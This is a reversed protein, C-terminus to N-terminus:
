TAESILPRTSNHFHHIANWFAGSREAFPYHGAGPIPARYADPLRDLLQQTTKIPIIPDFKGYVVLVPMTAEPLMGSIDVSPLWSFLSLLSRLDHQRAHPYVADATRKFEPHSRMAKPDAAFSQTALRFNQQSQVSLRYILEFGRQGMWGSRSLQELLGEVGQWQGNAFGDVSIVRAVSEPKSVARLLSLFGGMGHGVWEVVEDKPFIIEHVAQMLHQMQALNPGRSRAPEKTRGPAHFPLSVTAWPRGQTLSRATTTLWLDLSTLVGHLFIVPTGSGNLDYRRYAIQYPGRSFYEIQAM